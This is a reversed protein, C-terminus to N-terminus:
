AAGEVAKRAQERMFERSVRVGHWGDNAACQALWDAEKELRAVQEELADREVELQTMCADDEGSLVEQTAVQARLREIEKELRGARIVAPHKPCTGDHAKAEEISSSEYGCYPCETGLKATIVEEGTAASAAANLMTTLAEAMQDLRRNRLREIEKCLAIIVGPHVAAIYTLDDMHYVDAVSCVGNYYGTGLVKKKKSGDRRVTVEPNWPYQTAKQALAKIRTLAEPSIDIDNM